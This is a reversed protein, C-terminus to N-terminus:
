KPTKKMIRGQSSDTWYVSTSDVAVFQPSGLNTEWVVAGNAVGVPCKYISNGAAWYANIGDTAIGGALAGAGLNTPMANVANQSVEQTVSGTAQNTYYVNASDIAVDFPNNPYSPSVLPPGVVGTALNVKYVVNDGMAAVYAYTSTSDIALGGPDNPVGTITSVALTSKDAKMLTGPTNFTTWYVYTSDVAIAAPSIQGSAIQTPTVNGGLPIRMVTGGKSNTWYVNQADVATRYPYNQPYNQTMITAGLGYLSVRYLNGNSINTAVYAYNADISIGSVGPLTGAFLSV